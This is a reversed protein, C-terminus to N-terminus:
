PRAREWDERLLGFICTDRVFGTWTIRNRRLTGEHIAGLKLVAARSRLNRADVRFEIRTFGQAFAHDIMLRKMRTNVGAAGRARPEIYTGGIEVIHNADDPNIYSSMGILKGQWLVALPLRRDTGHFEDMARDFHEGLMSVPYINWIDQDRACAARLPEVHYNALPELRLDGDMLVTRLASM